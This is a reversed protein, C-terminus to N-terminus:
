LYDKSFLFLIQGCLYNNVFTLIHKALPNQHLIGNKLTNKRYFEFKLLKASM